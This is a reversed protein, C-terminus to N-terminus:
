TLRHPTQPEGLPRYDQLDRPSSTCAGLALLTLLLLPRLPAPM